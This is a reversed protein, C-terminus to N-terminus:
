PPVGEASTPQYEDQNNRSRERQELLYNRYKQERAIKIDNEKRKALIEKAEIETRLHESVKPQFNARM